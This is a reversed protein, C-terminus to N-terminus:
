PPPQPCLEMYGGLWLSPWVPACASGVHPFLPVGLLRPVAPGTIPSPLAEPCLGGRGRCSSEGGRHGDLGGQYLAVVAM